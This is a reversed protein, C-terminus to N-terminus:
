RRKKEREKREKREKRERKERKHKERRRRKLEKWGGEKELFQVTRAARYVHIEAERRVDRGQRKVFEVMGKARGKVKLARGRPLEGVRKGVGKFFRGISKSPEKVNSKIGLKISKSVSMSRFYDRVVPYRSLRPRPPLGKLGEIIRFKVRMKEDEEDKGKSSEIGVLDRVMEFGNGVDEKFYSWARGMGEAFGIKRGKRSSGKKGRGSLRERVGQLDEKFFRWANGFGEKWGVRGRERETEIRIWVTQGEQQGGSDTELLTRRRTKDIRRKLKKERRGEFRVEVRRELDVCRAAHSLM